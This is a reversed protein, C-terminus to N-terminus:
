NSQLINHCIYLILNPLSLKDFLLCFPYIFVTVRCCLWFMSGVNRGPCLMVAPVRCTCLLVAPVRCLPQSGVVHGPCLMLAPVHCCSRSVTIIAPVCCCLRSMAVCGPCPMVSSPILCTCSLVALVRCWPRFVAVSGPSPLVVPVRWWLRSIPYVRRSGSPVHRSPVLRNPLYGVQPHWVSGLPAVM